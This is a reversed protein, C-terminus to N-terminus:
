TSGPPSGQELDRAPPIIGARFHCGSLLSPKKSACKPALDVRCPGGLGTWIVSKAPLLGAFDIYKMVPM